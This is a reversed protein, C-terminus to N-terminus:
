HQAAHNIAIAFRRAETEKKAPAEILGTNGNPFTITIYIQNRSKRLLGGAVAGAPGFLIGGTIVRGARVQKGMDGSTEVDAHAGQIRHQQGATELSTRTLTWGAFTALPKADERQQATYAARDIGGHSPTPTQKNQMAAHVLQDAAAQHKKTYVIEHPRGAGTPHYDPTFLEITGNSIGKPKDHKVRTIRNLPITVHEPVGGLRRMRGHTLSIAHPTITAETGHFKLADTSM